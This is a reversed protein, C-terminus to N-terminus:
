RSSSSARRARSRSSRRHRRCTSRRAPSRRSSTSASRGTTSRPRCGSASTSSRRSARATARTCRASRRCTVHSEDIVLLYEGQFYDLLCGPRDGAKRGSLHRSYNEVGPCTGITALMELDYETRQRLRQAEVLKNEARLETVASRSSTAIASLAAILRPEAHRLAEGSLARAPGHAAAGARHASRGRLDARRARRRARHARSPGRVGSAGRRRRRAGRFTGRSVEIDNRTYQIEVLRELLHKRTLHEGSRADIRMGSWDEPAGLGYICSVSAVIIVDDRELLMSTAQLRLRDIDDNITADKAIYTNTSPVYAEPQYYDYYSIFYGVANDPFFQKFEGYLQAALTKNHSIVLAPRNFEAIVNSISFTKGSGTTGLLTQYRDGRRLGEVLEAIAQPQDGRPEYPRHIRFPMQTSRVPGRAAPRVRPRAGRATRSGARHARQCRRPRAQARAGRRERDAPGAVLAALMITMRFASEVGTLVDSRLMLALSRFGVSGPCSCSCRRARARRRAFRHLARGYLNSVIGATLAGVFIGLEPGLWAAGFRGGVFALVSTLLVGPADRVPLM